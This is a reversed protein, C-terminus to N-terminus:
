EVYWGLGIYFLLLGALGLFQGFAPASLAPLEIDSAISQQANRITANVRDCAMSALSAVYHRLDKRLPRTSQSPKLEDFLEQLRPIMELTLAMRVAVRQTPLGFAEFPRLLWMLGSMFERPSASQVLLNVAAILLMLSILRAVGAWLGEISGSLGGPGSMLLYLTLISIFLWKLRYFLKFTKILLLKQGLAFGIVLLGFTLALQAINASASALCLFLLLLIRISPHLVAVSLANATRM